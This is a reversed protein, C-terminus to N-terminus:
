LCLHFELVYTIFPFLINKNEMYTCVCACVCTLVFLTLICSVREYAVGELVCLCLCVCVNSM